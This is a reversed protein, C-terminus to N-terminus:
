LQDSRNTEWRMSDLEADAIARELLTAIAVARRAVEQDYADSFRDYDDLTKPAFSSAGFVRLNIKVTLPKVVEHGLVACVLRELRTV